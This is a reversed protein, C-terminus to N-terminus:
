LGYLIIVSSEEPNNQRKLQRPRRSFSFSDVLHIIGLFKLPTIKKRTGCTFGEWPTFAMRSGLTAGWELFHSTALQLYGVSRIPNLISPSSRVYLYEIVLVTFYDGM